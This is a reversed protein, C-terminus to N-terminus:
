SLGNIYILFLVPGLISGQPVGAVVDSWSSHQGNLVVRQKRSSLFDALVNLLPGKIGNERLKQLLDKHWVKDFAKSINLFVVGVEYGQDLSKTASYGNLYIGWFQFFHFQLIVKLVGKIM